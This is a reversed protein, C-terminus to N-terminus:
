ARTRNSRTQKKNNNGNKVENEVFLKLFSDKTLHKLSYNYDVETDYNVVKGGLLGIIDNLMLSKTWQQYLAQTAVKSVESNGSVRAQGAGFNLLVFCQEMEHPLMMGLITQSQVSQCKVEAFLGNPDMMYDYNIGSGKGVVIKYDCNNSGSYVNSTVLTPVKLGNNAYLYEVAGNPANTIDGSYMLGGNHQNYSANWGVKGGINLGSIDIDHAGWANEWYVGVAMSRGFFKTGTPINGVYMKESTPLAFEVNHPVFITKGTLDFRTTLHNKLFEFNWWVVSNIKGEKTFSKGNRIRYVFSKQGLMRTHCAAMAKFLAFPTANDLWHSDEDTLMVSTVHNLPNIVMPKHHTKSLKSIKNITKPCITKFALFLPKFRNFIEALKELGFQNFMPAPNFKSAKIADITERNKILLSEGTAKFLVFRFFAMTDSPLVNYIDALIVEAEKNRITEDGTFQYDLQDILVSLITHITEEKLAIGSNLLDFCKATLEDKSLGHVLKFMVRQDPVDVIEKPIYIEDQFNSGYTSIYHKIQEMRLEAESSRKIKLWSKHFTKNLGYGDLLENKYYRVIEKKAWLANASIVLGNESVFPTEQSPKAVVANFLELTKM